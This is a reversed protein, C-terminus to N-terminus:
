HVKRDNDLWEKYSIKVGHHTGLEAEAELPSKLWQFDVGPFAEAGYAVINEMRDTVLAVYEDVEDLPVDAVVEDHVLNVIRSEMRREHLAENILIAAFLLTDSAASQVPMNVASRRDKNRKGRNEESNDNIYFLQERRGYPSEIYGYTEAFQQTWQRYELVEPFRSYYQNVAEKGDELSIGYLRNLTYEDGGYLLTWNTWKFIYRVEPAIEEYPIGSIMSAVMKHFDLGSRHIELMPECNALSAFVRLEMGSYDAAILLGLPNLFNNHRYGWSHTFINKIPLYQLLTGPRSVPTPINQMNPDSSSIRGTVTGHLNYTSRVKGDGSAWAGTYAPELYTSIAKTLMRYTNVRGVLPCDPELAKTVDEKVSPQGSDTEALVPLKLVDYYLQKVQIHSNPNFRVVPRKRNYRNTGDDYIVRDDTIRVHGLKRAEQPLRNLGAAKLMDGVVRRDAAQQLRSMLRKVPEEQLLGDLIDQQIDSYIQYYREAIYYDLNNGAFQVDVLMDSARLVLERYLVRQKPSLQEMFIQHLRFTADADMAVYPLLVKSPIHGYHGPETGGNTLKRRKAPNAEPHAQIYETLLRDYDYMMLHIGALRKLGHIGKRSDILHSALMTDGGAHFDVGEWKKWWIQDFKLNHGIISGSKCDLIANVVETVEALEGRNWHQEKHDLILGYSRGEGAFGVAIIAAHHYDEDEQHVHWPDLSTAEVDFSIERQALLWDRMEYVDRLTSPYIYQVKEKTVGNRLADRAAVFGEIWDGLAQENRLIYAPHYLPVYIRDERDVVVGNWNSIGAEGLVVNLPTNGMLLVLKPNYHEIEDLVYHSCANIAKRTIKNDPPRCRVVNTFRVEDTSIELQDLAERLLGGSQGVFPKGQADEQAGPAEGVVLVAPQQAGTSEM